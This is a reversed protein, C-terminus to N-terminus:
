IREIFNQEDTKCQRANELNLSLGDILSDVNLWTMEGKLAMEVLCKIKISTDVTEM